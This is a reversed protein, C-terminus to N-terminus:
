PRPHHLNPWTVEDMADETRQFEVLRFAAEYKIRVNSAAYLATVALLLPAYVATVVLLLPAYLATVALLSSDYLATVALNQGQSDYKIRIRLYAPAHGSELTRASPSLV